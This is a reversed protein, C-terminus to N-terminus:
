AFVDVNQVLFLLIEVREKGKMSAGILFSRDDNPLIRVRVLDEACSAGWKRKPDRYNSYPLRRLQSRKSSERTM